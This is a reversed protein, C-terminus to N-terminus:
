RHYKKHAENAITFDNLRLYSSTDSIQKQRYLVEAMSEWVKPDMGFLPDTSRIYPALANLMALEHGRNLSPDFRLVIDVAEDTHSLASRWGRESAELFREVLSSKNRLTAENVVLTDSYFHVGFEDPDLVRVEVHNEKASLPENIVYAPWVDVDGHLFPVINYTAPYEKISSRDVHFRDLLELFISETDFGHLVGVTKGVFDKPTLIGSSERVMFGALSRSYVTGIARIPMKERDFSSLVQDAVWIGFDEKELAVLTPVNFGIGGPRITLDINQERYFGKEKAVYFGAFQAQHIWQLRLSVKEYGKGVRHNFVAVTIGVAAFVILAVAASRRNM